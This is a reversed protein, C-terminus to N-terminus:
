ALGVVVRRYFTADDNLWVAKPEDEDVRRCVHLELRFDFELVGGEVDDDVYPWWEMSASEPLEPLLNSTAYPRRGCPERDPLGARRAADCATNTLLDLTEASKSVPLVSCGSRLTRANVAFAVRPVGTGSM